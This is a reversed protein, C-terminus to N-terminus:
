SQGRPFIQPRQQGGQVEKPEQAKKKKVRPIQVASLKTNEYKAQTPGCEDKM